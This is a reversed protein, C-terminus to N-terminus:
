LNDASLNELDGDKYEINDIRNEAKGFDKGFLSLVLTDLFVPKGDIYVTKRMNKKDEHTLLSCKTRGRDSVWVRMYPSIGHLERWKEEKIEATM